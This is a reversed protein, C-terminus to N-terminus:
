FPADNSRVLKRLSTGCGKWVTKWLMRRELESMEAMDTLGIEACYEGAIEDVLEIAKLEYADMRVVRRFDELVLSCPACIWKPDKDRASTFGVGIGIAREGCYHCDSPTHTDHQTM